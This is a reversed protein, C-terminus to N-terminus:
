PLKGTSLPHALLVTGAAPVSILSVQGCITLMTLMLNCMHLRWMSMGGSIAYALDIHGVRLKLAAHQSLEAVATVRCTIFSPMLSAIAINIQLLACREQNPKWFSKQMQGELQMCFVRLSSAGLPTSIGAPMVHWQMGINLGPFARYVFLQGSHPGWVELVTHGHRCEQISHLTRVLYM